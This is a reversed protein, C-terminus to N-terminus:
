ICINKHSVSRVCEVVADFAGMIVVFACGTRIRWGDVLRWTTTSGSNTSPRGLIEVLNSIDEPVLAVDAYVVAPLAGATLVGVDSSFSLLNKRSQPVQFGPTGGCPRRSGCTEADPLFPQKGVM